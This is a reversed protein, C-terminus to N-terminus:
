LELMFGFVLTWIWLYDNIGLQYLIASLIMLTVLIMQKTKM